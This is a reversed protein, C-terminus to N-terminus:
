IRKQNTVQKGRPLSMLRMVKSASAKDNQLLKRQSHVGNVSLCIFSDAIESSHVNVNSAMVSSMLFNYMLLAFSILHARIQSFKISYTVWRLCCICSIQCIKTDQSFAAHGSKKLIVDVQHVCM